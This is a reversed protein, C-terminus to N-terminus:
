PEGGQQARLSKLHETVEDPKERVLRIMDAFVPHPKGFNRNNHYDWEELLALVQEREAKAVQADHEKESLREACYDECEPTRCACGTWCRIKSAKGERYGQMYREKDHLTPIDKLTAPAPPAPSQFYRFSHMNKCWRYANNHYELPNGCVECKEDPAPAPPSTHTACGVIDCIGQKFGCYYPQRAPTTM